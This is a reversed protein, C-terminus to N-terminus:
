ILGRQEEMRKVTEPSRQAHLEAYKRFAERRLEPSLWETLFIKKQLRMREELTVM